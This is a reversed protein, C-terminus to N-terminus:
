YQTVELTRATNVLTEQALLSEDFTRNILDAINIDSCLILSLLESNRKDTVIENQMTIEM